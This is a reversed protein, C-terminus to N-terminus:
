IVGGSIHCYLTDSISTIKEYSWLAVNTSVCVLYLSIPTWALITLLYYPFLHTLHMGWGSGTYPWLCSLHFIPLCFYISHVPFLSPVLLYSHCPFPYMLPLHIVAVEWTLNPVLRTPFYTSYFRTWDLSPGSYHLFMSWFIASNHVPTARSKNLEQCIGIFSDM